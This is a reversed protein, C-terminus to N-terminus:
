KYILIKIAHRPDMRKHLHVKTKMLKILNHYNLSSKIDEEAGIVEFEPENKKKKNNMLM